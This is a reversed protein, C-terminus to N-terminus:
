SVDGWAGHVPCSPDYQRQSGPEVASGYRTWTSEDTWPCECQALERSRLHEVLPQLKEFLELAQPWSLSILSLPEHRTILVHHAQPHVGIQDRPTPAAELPGGSGSV